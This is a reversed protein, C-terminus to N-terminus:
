ELYVYLLLGHASNIGESARPELIPIDCVRLSIREEEAWKLLLQHFLKIAVKYGREKMADYLEPIPASDGCGSHEQCYQRHCDQLLQFYKEEPPLNNTKDTATPKPLAMKDISATKIEASPKAEAAAVAIPAPRIETPKIPDNTVPKCMVEEADVFPQPAVENKRAGAPSAEATEQPREDSLTPMDSAVIRVTELAGALSKTQVQWNGVAQELSLLREEIARMNESLRRMENVSQDQRESLDRRMEQCLKEIRGAAQQSEEAALAQFKKSFLAFREGGAVTALEQMYTATLEEIKKNLAALAQQREQELQAALSQEAVNRQWAAFAQQWAGVEDRITQMNRTFEGRRQDLEAELAKKRSDFQECPPLRDIGAACLVFRDAGIRACLKQQVAAELWAPLLATKVRVGKDTTGSQQEGLYLALLFRDIALDQIRKAESGRQEQWFTFGAATITFQKNDPSAQLYQRSVLTQLVDSKVNLGLQRASLKNGGELIGQELAAVCLQEM